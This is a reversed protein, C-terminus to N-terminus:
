GITGLLDAIPAAVGPGAAIMGPLHASPTNFPLPGGHLGTVIGGAAAVLAAGAAVDWEHKPVLTWTADALGAAVLGLKYAVSGMPRWEFPHDSFRDWEGRDTESRSALVVAGELSRRGSARVPAGNLTVGVELSGLIIQGTAPNAIGGAVPRGDVVLGVSVCWEPLGQVFEKTGDLPDVIWVRSRELRSPDDVSEESLWGEGERPLLERLTADVLRDAETVPSGGAKTEAAVAGPTFRRLVDVAAVLAREIRALDDANVGCSGNVGSSGTM